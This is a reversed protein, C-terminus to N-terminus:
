LILIGSMLKSKRSKIMLILVFTLDKRRNKHVSQAAIQMSSHTPVKSMSSNVSHKRSTITTEIVWFERPPSAAQGNRWFLINSKRRSTPLPTSSSNILLRMLSIYIIRKSGNNQVHPTLLMRYGSIWWERTPLIEIILDGSFIAIRKQRMLQIM